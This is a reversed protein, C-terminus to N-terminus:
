EECLLRQIEEALNKNTIVILSRPSTRLIEGYEAKTGRLIYTIKKQTCWQIFYHKRKEPYDTAIFILQAKDTKIANEVATEGSFLQRSKQAFGFLAKIKQPIM